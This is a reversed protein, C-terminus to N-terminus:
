NIKLTMTKMGIHGQMDSGEIWVTYTGKKDASFFSTKAEGKENTVLNPVWYITSRLDPKKNAKTAATYKPSYFVKLDGYTKPKYLYMNSYKKLFPGSGSKTTVEIYSRYDGLSIPDKYVEPDQAHAIDYNNTNYLSSMIEIGIIEEALYSDLYSRVFRYHDDRVPMPSYFYDVDLGDIIIKVPNTKIFFARNDSKRLTGERMGPVKEFLVDYLTKKPGKNLEEETITVDASGPGNLNQSNKIVKKGVVSVEKLSVGEGRYVKKQTNIYNNTVEEVKADVLTMAQRNKVPVVFTAPKFDNLVIGLTGKREKANLAQIVFSASDMAPLKDFTFVGKDDAETARFMFKKNYGIISVKAKAVPKNTLNTVLGSITFDKEAKFLPKINNQLTYSTWGQTLLLAELDEHKQANFGHFYSGPNEIEGKLDANLLLYSLINPSNISDKAVQGDDTIAMSFSGILPNGAADTVKLRVPISDRESYTIKEFIPNIKLEDNHNIFFSRENLPRRNIDAVIIQSVGTPFINKPLTLSKTLINAKIKVVFCLLDRSQGLLLLEQDKLTSQLNITISDASFTNIVGLSTGSIQPKPLGINKIGSENKLVAIYTEGQKPTMIFYGMGKENSSFSAVRQQKSDLIDGNISSGMGNTNLAKFAMRQQRDAIWTGGEPLFQLDIALPKGTENPGQRKSSNSNNTSSVSEATGTPDFDLVKLEKKFYYRDGFNQMWNTYARFTYTGPSYTKINLDFGGWTLGAGTPLCATKVIKGKSDVMEFYILGSQTSASKLSADFLYAKFWITDLPAYVDKDFHVFLKEKSLTRNLSDYAAIVKLKDQDQQAYISNSFLSIFTIAFIFTSIKLV